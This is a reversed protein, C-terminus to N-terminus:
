LYSLVSKRIFSYDSFLGPLSRALVAMARVLAMWAIYESSILLASM